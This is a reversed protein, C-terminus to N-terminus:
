RGSEQNQFHFTCSSTEPFLEPESVFGGEIWTRLALAQRGSDTARFWGAGDVSEVGLASCTALRRIENVRGVHVRDFNECWMPLSRWKWETTGGVFVVEAENPVDEPTMGDQVAFAKKFGFVDVVSAYRSWKELTSDKDGVVDPVIAWRPCLGSQRAWKLLEVWEFESWERNKSFSTFADNDLAYPIWDRLKTKTRASPGVLWGISGPKLGALFHVLANSANAPMIMM